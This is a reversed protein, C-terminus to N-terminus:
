FLFLERYDGNKNVVEIDSTKLWAHAIMKKDQNIAIGLSLQSPIKRRSLMWRAALSQVLCKNKWPSIHQTSVIATKIKEQIITTASAFQHSPNPFLGPIKRFPIIKLLAGVILQFFLAELFLKKEPFQLAAFKKIRGQKIMM